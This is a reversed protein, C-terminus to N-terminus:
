TYYTSYLSKKFIKNKQDESSCGFIDDLDDYETNNEHTEKNNNCDELYEKKLV